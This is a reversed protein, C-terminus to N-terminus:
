KGERYIKSIRKASCMRLFEYGTIGANHSIEAINCHEGIIEVEAGVYLLNKPVNSVDLITLDMSVIGIIPVKHIGVYCYGNNSLERSYGDAYGGAITALLMGKKVKTTAGYGVTGDSEVERIQLISSSITIPNKLFELNTGSTDYGYLAAGPRVMDFHYEPSLFIGASNCLSVKSDKVFSSLLQMKSFQENNMKNKSDDACALHSLVYFIDCIKNLSLYENKLLSLGEEYNIGLRNMGTDIHLAAVLRRRKRLCFNKWLNVQEITNLVPSINENFFFNEEGSFFGNLVFIRDSLTVQRIEIAEELTAVFFTHCGAKSLVPVVKNAGLGYADAKVVASVETSDGIHQCIAKYNNVITELNIVLKLNSEVTTESNAM